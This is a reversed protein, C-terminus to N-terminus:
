AAKERLKRRRTSEDAAKVEALAEVEAPAATMEAAAKAATAAAGRRAVGGGAAAVRWGGGRGSRTHRIRRERDRTHMIDPPLGSFVCRPTCGVDHQASPRPRQHTLPLNAAGLAGGVSSGHFRQVILDV